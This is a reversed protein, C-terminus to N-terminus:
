IDDGRMRALVDDPLQNFDAQSLKIVDKSTLAGGARDSDLGVRNANPPTRTVADLTQKVAGKRREAGVDKATVRPTTDVASEQRKTSTGVIKDVAKQMAATPTLGKREYAGKLDIVDEMLDADFDDHDENLQPYASEIRELVLNYRARETARSEAAAIKMDSKAEVIARETQRIKTMLAAAQKVEGDSMLENYQAEMKLINDEAATIDENLTAVESGRQFQALQRELEARKGREKELMDKHRSLPIRPNKGKGPAQAAGEEEGEEDEDPDDKGAAATEAAPEDGDDESPEFDDGRDVTDTGGADSGGDGAPGQLRAFLHKLLPNM